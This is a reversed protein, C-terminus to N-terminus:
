SKAALAERLRKNEAMLDDTISRWSNASRSYIERAENRQMTLREIQEQPTETM